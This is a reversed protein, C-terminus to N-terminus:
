CFYLGRRHHWIEELLALAFAKVGEKSKKSGEDGKEHAGDTKTIDSAQVSKQEVALAENNSSGETKDNKLVLPRNGM